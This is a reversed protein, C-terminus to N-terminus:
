RMKRILDRTKVRIEEDYEKIVKYNINHINAVNNMIIKIIKEIDLFSIEDNLFAKVCIENCANLACGYLGKNTIVRKAYRILPYRRQNLRRFHYKGFDKYRKAYYTTIVEDREMLAYRIANHMDPNSVEARYSGDKYQIMSHIMSEDHLLVNIKDCFNNFMYYAEIIEFCKNMMTACDITIKAGMNWTPHKLADQKKVYKLNKRKLDRFAGGSATLILRKVGEKNVSLCKDIAVHESDIPILKGKNNELLSYILEGGVVLSEKNALCVIKNRELALLTPELGCFGVLANVLLDFNTQNTINKLGDDGDYFCVNSFQKKIDDNVKKISYFQTITKFKQLIELGKELNEGVSIGALEFLPNDNIIDIVQSGINGSAGLLLIKKM